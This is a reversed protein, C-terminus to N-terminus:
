ALIERTFDEACETLRPFDMADIYYKELTDHVNKAQALCRCAEKLLEAAVKRDFNLRERHSHLATVDSFRRAHVRREGTPIRDLERETLFALHREPILVGDLYEPLFCNHLAVIEYGARVACDRVTKMFVRSVGGYPDCLVVRNEYAPLISGTFDVIGEPTTGKLFRHWEHGAATKRVPLLRHCMREAFAACRTRDTCAEAIALRGELVKGAALLYRKAKAHFRKNEAAAALIGAANERLKGSDWFRGTDVSNECVGPAQPEVTHPATADLLIIKKAPLIVGDLSRPDSSCPCLIVTESRRDAHYAFHKMFSSKGTGPGGKILFTRWGDAVDYNDAFRSVFGTCSNAALFFKQTINEM